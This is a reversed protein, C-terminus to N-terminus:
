LLRCPPKRELNTPPRLFREAKDVAKEVLKNFEESNKPYADSAALTYTSSTDIM